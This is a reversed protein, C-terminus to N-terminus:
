NENKMAVMSVRPVSLKAFVYKLGLFTVRWNIEIVGGKWREDIIFHQGFIKTVINMAHKHSRKEEDYM